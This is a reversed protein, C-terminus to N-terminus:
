KSSTLIKKRNEKSKIISHHEKRVKREIKTYEKHCPKCIPGLGDCKIFLRKAFEDLTTYGEKTDIVSELHNLDIHSSLFEKKCISCDIKGNSKRALALCLLANPTRKWNRRLQAMSHKIYDFSEVSEKYKCVACMTQVNDFTFHKKKDILVICCSRLPLERGCTYCGGEKLTTYMELTIAVEKKKKKATRLLFSYGFSQPHKKEKSKRQKAVIIM